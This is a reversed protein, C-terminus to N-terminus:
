GAHLKAAALTCILEKRGVRQFDIAVVRNAPPGSLGVVRGPGFVDHVVAQGARWPDGPLAIPGDDDPEPLEGSEAHQAPRRGPGRSPMVRDAPRRRGSMDRADLCHRPIESLFQSPETRDTSGYLSRFRAFSLYLEEKARTIGVYMLRREEELDQVQKGRVLPFIGHELGVIFVVPFELGKSAHITMLRVQDADREEDASTVLAIHDLFGPLGQDAHAERYATAAEALERINGVREQGKEGEEHELYWAEIGSHLIVGHICATPDGLALARLMRWAKALERLGAGTKGAACQDLLDDRELVEAVPVEAGDAVQYIAELSRDGIGRRPVQCMRAFALRDSPNVLLKLYALVDKVEQRDYFRVDGVIQYPIERRRLGDELGRSLRSIRYFVAIDRLSRSEGRMRDIAAAVAYAEDIEDDVAVVTIPRGSDNDTRITKDIRETNNEVVGQAAMLITKTSRYNTELRVERCPAFDKQFTLINRIDAGRWGYIAQDPDGTACVNRHAGLQRVLKYQVANTDQFEDVLIYPFRDTWKQRLDADQEFLRVPWCLLDDFDLRGDRRNADRYAIYAEKARMTFPDESEIQEIAVLDNKWASVREALRRPDYEKPDWKKETVITRYLKTQDDPDLLTFPGPPMGAAAALRAQEIKLMRLGASHFTTIWPTEVGILRQVREKMEGAAKNTFTIALIRDPRLSRAQIIHAIRHTIVRTKGSGAGAVVLLPGDLHGIAAQQEPNMQAFVDIM